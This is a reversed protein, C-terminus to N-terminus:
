INRTKEFITTDITPIITPKNKKTFSDKEYCRDFYICKFCQNLNNYKLSENNKYDLTNTNDLVYQTDINRYVIYKAKNTIDSDDLWLIKLKNITINNQLLNKLIFLVSPIHLYDISNNYLPQTNLDKHLILFVDVTNNIVGLYPIKHSYNNLNDSWHITQNLISHEYKKIDKILIDITRNIASWVDALYKLKFYSLLNQSKLFSLMQSNYYNEVDKKIISKNDLFNNLIVYFLYSSFAAIKIDPDEISAYQNIIDDSESFTYTLNNYDIYRTNYDLIKPCVTKLNYDSSHLFLIEKLQKM